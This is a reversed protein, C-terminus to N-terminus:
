PLFNLATLAQRTIDLRLDGFRNMDLTEKPEINTAFFYVNDSTEVYGVFWGNDIGGGNSWGTKGSLRYTEAEELVMMRKIIAETRASIPLQSRYLRRLFAIQQYPSIRSDGELWFRDINGSDVVMTGYDLKRLYDNMRQAGIARAVEQYCPVCSLRFAECFILDQEWREMAREEGDWPFLTSDDAVVGTELAIISNPIKYTSAPLHGEKAKDFNNSYYVDSQQDYVLVIGSVQSSDLVTQLTPIVRQTSDGVLTLGSPPIPYVSNWGLVFSNLLLILNIFSM